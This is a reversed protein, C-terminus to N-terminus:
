GNYKQQTSSGACQLMVGQRFALIRNGGPLEVIRYIQYARKQIVIVDDNQLDSAKVNTVEDQYIHRNFVDEDILTAMTLTNSAVFIGLAYFSGFYKLM